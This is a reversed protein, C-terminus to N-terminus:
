CRMFNTELLNLMLLVWLLVLHISTLPCNEAVTSVDGEPSIKVISSTNGGMYPGVPPIVQACNTSNNGGVGATAVYLTDM